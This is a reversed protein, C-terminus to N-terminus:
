ALTWVLTVVVLLASTVLIALPRWRPTPPGTVVAAAAPAVLIVVWTFALHGSSFVPSFVLLGALAVWWEWSFGVLRAGLAVAALFSAAFAVLMWGVDCFATDARCGSAIVPASAAVVVGGIIAGVLVLLYSWAIRSGGLPSERIASDNPKVM